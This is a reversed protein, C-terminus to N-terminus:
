MLNDPMAENMEVEPVQVNMDMPADPPLVPPRYVPRPPCPGLRRGSLRFDASGSQAGFRVDGGATAQFSNATYSGDLEFSVGMTGGGGGRNPSPIGTCTMRVRLRGGEMVLESLHCEPGRELEPPSFRLDEIRVLAATMPWCGRTTQTRNAPMRRMDDRLWPPLNDVRVNTIQLTTEWEGREMAVNGGGGGGSRGCGGVALALCAATALIHHRTM